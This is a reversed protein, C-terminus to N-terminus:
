TKKLLYADMITRALKSAKTNSTHELIVAIAIKPHPIPAFGIFLANDRLKKLLKKQPINKGNKPRFVQATGTKAAIRYTADRGFRFGTGWPKVSKVVLEMAHTIRYWNYPWRLSLLYQLQKSHLHTEGTAQRTKFLLTPQYRKGHTAITAVARALQIPTALMYGQGIGLLITDGTYWQENHHTWKWDPSPLLGAREEELEVGTKEGYGFQGLIETIKQVGLKVSLQYFFTDCSVILAKQYNVTGHGNPRWDHYIHPAHPLKFFGKDEISFHTSIVEDDLAKLALFPKITSAQSYQGRVARNYMPKNTATQLKQYDKENVGRVFINPDFSPTSVMALVQGTSPEIAVVAGVEEKMADYITMQLQSNISLYLNDGSEAPERDIQNVAKGSADTEVQQHGTQGHLQTEFTKEIGMKGVFETGRYNSVPLSKLEQEDIRGVYGIVNAFAEGMPYERVMRSNISVGSFQNRKAYFTAVEQDTLELKLPVPDFAANRKLAKYFQKLEEENIVFLSQLRVITQKLNRTKSPTIELSFVPINKALIVGDRDYILGRNPPIPIFEYRNHESLTQYHSERWIQLYALRLIISITILILVFGVRWLRHSYLHQHWNASRRQKYQTM